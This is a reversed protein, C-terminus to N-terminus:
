PSEVDHGHQPRQGVGDPQTQDALSRDLSAGTAQPVKSTATAFFM